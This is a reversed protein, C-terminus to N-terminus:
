FWIYFWNFTLIMHLCNLGHLAFGRPGPCGPVSASCPAGWPTRPSSWSCLTRQPDSSGPRPWPSVMRVTGPHQNSARYFTFLPQTGNPISGMRLSNSRIGMLPEYHNLVRELNSPNTFTPPNSSSTPVICAALNGATKDWPNRPGFAKLLNLHPHRGM